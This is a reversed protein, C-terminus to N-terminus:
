EASATEIDDCHATCEIVVRMADDEDDVGGAAVLWDMLIRELKLLDDSIYDRREISLHWHGGREVPDVKAICLNEEFYPSTTEDPRKYCYGAVTEDGWCSLGDFWVRRMNKPMHTNTTM